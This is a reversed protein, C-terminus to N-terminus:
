LDEYFQVEAVFLGNTGNGSFNMRHYQYAATVTIASKLLTVSQSSGTPFALVGTLDTWTSNDTSGQMKFNCGGGGGNINADNPGYIVAKTVLHVVGAGWNKGITNGFGNVSTGIGAGSASAQSPVGDFAAALGGLATMNGIATGNGQPILTTTVTKPTFGLAFRSM